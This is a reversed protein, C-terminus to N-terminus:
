RLAASGGLYHGGDVVLATGTIFAAAPSALFVAARGIDDVTGFRGLPTHAIVKRVLDENGALREAGVTDRIFGPLISNSRIGHRGWELALTRMMNDVGAKAAGAHVQGQYPMMSQGASIFLLSGRTGALQRFGAKATNFSGLLDIDVVTKFGNFSLDEADCMFNGAAGCVVIDAPGIAQEAAAFSQEMREGDRVDAALTVVQAGLARLTEAAADLREQTRGCLALRAGAMAMHRAIGFNIGSGGGTIFAAKDQLVKENSM